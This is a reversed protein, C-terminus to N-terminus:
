MSHQRSQLRFHIRHQGTMGPRSLHLVTSGLRQMLNRHTIIIMMVCLWSQMCRCGASRILTRGLVSHHTAM